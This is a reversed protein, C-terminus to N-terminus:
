KEIAWEAKLAALTPRPTLVDVYKQTGKSIANLGFWAHDYACGPFHGTFVPDGVHKSRYEPNNADAKWWEDTWEFYFGGSVLGDTTYREYLLKNNNKVLDVLGAINPNGRKPLEAADRNVPGDPGEPPICRGTGHLNHEYSYTNAWAPHYSAAAGYETLLVPKTTDSTIQAFLNTFTRGRYPNDGWVDVKAGLKEGYYIAGLHEVGGVKVIADVDSTTVIKQPNGGKTFGARAADAVRNFNKWWTPNNWWDPKVIENSIIVGMVAPYGAYKYALAEYQKSLERVADENLLASGDFYVTLLVYIPNTGNNWAANLWNSIPGTAKDYPPPVVNYVHVVNVGMARLLPLDRSWIASNDDRLPDNLSPPDSLGNGIPTPSYVMGKVYFKQGNLLIYRGSVTFASGAGAGHVVQPATAPAGAPGQFGGCGALTFTLFGAILASRRM